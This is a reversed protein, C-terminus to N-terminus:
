KHKKMYRSTYLYKNTSVRVNIYEYRRQKFAVEIIDRVVAKSQRQWCLFRYVGHLLREHYKLPTTHKRRKTANYRRM